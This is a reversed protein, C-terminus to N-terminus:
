LTPTFMYLTIALSLCSFLLIRFSDTVASGTASDTIGDFSGNITSRLWSQYVSVRTYVGAYRADGCDRGYSTIGALVWRNTKSDFHM